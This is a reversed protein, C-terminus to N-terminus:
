THSREQSKDRIDNLRVRIAEIQDKVAEHVRIALSAYQRALAISAESNYSGKPYKEFGEALAKDRFKRTFYLLAKAEANAVGLRTRYESLGEEDVTEQTLRTVHKIFAALTDSFSQGRKHHSLYVTNSGLEELESSSTM